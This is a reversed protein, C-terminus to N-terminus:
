FAAFSIAERPPPAAVASCNPVMEMVFCTERFAGQGHPLPLFYLCHQRRLPLRSGARSGKPQDMLGAPGLEEFRKKWAYLTHHSVHVLAAFDRAPLGSGQWTDLLLLKQPASLPMQPSQPKSLTGRHRVSAAAM